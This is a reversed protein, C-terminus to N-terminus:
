SAARDSPAAPTTSAREAWGDEFDAPSLDVKGALAADLLRRRPKTPVRGGTGGSDSSMLWRYVWNVSCGCLDAVAEAGGCKDIVGRAPWM